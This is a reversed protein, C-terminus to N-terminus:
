EDTGDREIKDPLFSNGMESLYYSKAKGVMVGECIFGAAELQKLKKYVTVPQEKIREHECIESITMSRIDDLM